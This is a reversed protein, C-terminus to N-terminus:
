RHDAAEGGFYGILYVNSATPLIGCAGGGWSHLAVEIVGSKPNISVRQGADTVIELYEVNEIEHKQGEGLPTGPILGQEKVTVKM